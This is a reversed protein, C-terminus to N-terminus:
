NVPVDAPNGQRVVKRIGIGRATAHLFADGSGDSLEVFGYRKQPNYWKV